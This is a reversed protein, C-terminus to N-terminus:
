PVQAEMELTVEKDTKEYAAGWMERWRQAKGRGDGSRQNGNRNKLAFAYCPELSGSNQQFGKVGTSPPTNFTVYKWSASLDTCGGGFPTMYGIEYQM